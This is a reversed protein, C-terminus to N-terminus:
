GEAQQEEHETLLDSEGTEGGEPKRMDERHPSGDEAQEKRLIEEEERAIASEIIELLFDKQKCKKKAVVRKLRKFLEESVQVAVTRAAMHNAGKEMFHEEIVKRLFEKTTIEDRDMEQRAKDHLEKPISGCINKEEM